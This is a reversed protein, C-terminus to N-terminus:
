VHARGIQWPLGFTAVTTMSFPVSAEPSQNGANVQAWTAGAALAALLASKVLRM